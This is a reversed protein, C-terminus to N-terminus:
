SYISDDPLTQEPMQPSFKYDSKNMNERIIKEKYIVGYERTKILNVIEEVKTTQNDVVNIDPMSIGRKQM